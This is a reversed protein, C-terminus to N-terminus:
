RGRPLVTTKLRLREARPSGPPAAPAPESAAATPGSPAPEAVEEAVPPAAPPPERPTAVALSLALERLREKAIPAVSVTPQPTTPPSEAVAADADAVTLKLRALQELFDERQSPALRDLGQEEVLREAQGLLNRAHGLPGSIRAGSALAQALAKTAPQMQQLLEQASSPPRRGPEFRRGGGGNGKGRKKGRRYPFM